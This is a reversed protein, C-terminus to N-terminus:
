SGGGPTIRTRHNSSKEGAVGGGAARRGVRDGARRRHGTAAGRYAQLALASRRFEGMLRAAAGSYLTVVQPTNSNTSKACLLFIRMHALSLQEILMVEIPDTPGGCDALLRDRYLRFSEFGVGQLFTRMSVYSFMSITSDRLHGAFHETEGPVETSATSPRDTAPEPTLRSTAPADGTDEPDDGGDRVNKTPPMM